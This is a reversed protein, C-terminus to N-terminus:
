IKNKGSQKATSQYLLSRLNQLQAFGPIQEIAAYDALDFLEEQLSFKACCRIAAIPM